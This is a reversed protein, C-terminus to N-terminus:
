EKFIDHTIVHEVVGGEDDVEVVRVSGVEPLTEVVKSSIKSLEPFTEAMEPSAEAAEYFAEAVRVVHKEAERELKEKLCLIRKVTHKAVESYVAAAVIVALSASVPIKM